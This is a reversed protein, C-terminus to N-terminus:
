AAKLKEILVNSDVPKSIYDSCGSELCRERDGELSHATLAIIPKRYGRQRLIRTAQFGNMVPMQIDMLVVDFAKHEREASMVAEVAERGNEVSVIEASVPGLLLRLLEQADQSDEALLIKKSIQGSTPTTDKPVIQMPHEEEAVDQAPFCLQFRSGAGPKSTVTLSGHMNEALSRSISLGLGTGGYRRSMSSEAQTFPEFIRDLDSTAIGIGTDIISIALEGQSAKRVPAIWKMEM